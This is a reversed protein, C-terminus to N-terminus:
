PVTGPMRGVWRRRLSWAGAAVRVTTVRSKLQAAAAQPDGPGGFLLAGAGAGLGADGGVLGGDLEVPVGSAGVALVLPVGDARVGLVRRSLDLCGQAQVLFLEALDDEQGLAVEGLEEAGVGLVSGAQQAAEEAGIAELFQLGPQGGAAFFCPLLEVLGEGFDPLQGFPDVLLRTGEARVVALSGSAWGGVVGASEAGPGLLEESEGMFRAGCRLDISHAAVVFVALGLAMVFLRGVEGSPLGPVAVGTVATGCEVFLGGTMGSQAFFEVTTSAGLRHAWQELSQVAGSGCQLFGPRAFM